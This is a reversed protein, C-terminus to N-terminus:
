ARHVASRRSPPLLHRTWHFWKVVTQKNFLSCVDRPAPAVHHSESTWVTSIFPRVSRLATMILSANERNMLGHMRGAAREHPYELALEIMTGCFM